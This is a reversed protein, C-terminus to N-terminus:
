TRAWGKPLAQHTTKNIKQINPDTSQANPTENPHACYPPLPFPPKVPNPVVVPQERIKTLKSLKDVNQNRLFDGM